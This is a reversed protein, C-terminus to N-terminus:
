FNFRASIEIERPTFLFGSSNSNNAVGLSNNSNTSGQGQYTLTSGSLSYSTTGVGTINQHNALNFVNCLLEVSRGGEFSTEKELRM